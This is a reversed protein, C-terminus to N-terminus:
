SINNLTNNLTLRRFTPVQQHAFELRRTESDVPKLHGCGTTYHEYSAKCANIADLCDKMTMIIQVPQHRICTCIYLVYIIYIHCQWLYRLMLSHTKM